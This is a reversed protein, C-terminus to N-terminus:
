IIIRIGVNIVSFVLETGCIIIIIALKMLVVEPSDRRVAERKKRKLLSAPAPLLASIVLYFACSIISFHTFSFLTTRKMFPVGRAGSHPYEFKTTSSSLFYPLHHM